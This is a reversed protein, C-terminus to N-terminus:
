PAILGKELLRPSFPLIIDKDFETHAPDIKAKPVRSLIHRIVNLRARKKDNANVVIWPAFEHHTRILMADRRKSYKKWMKQATADIPSSKWQSLPDNKRSELREGQEKKTIDLYYKIIHIGAQTLLTEFTVVTEMFNQYENNTCFGMVAEVGARNYWSRNMLVLEGEAPLHAVYRQFYWSEQDRNSPKGLAVIRTERPSLHQTIRKIVGDKGAADRGEFIILTKRNNKILSRQLKVLEIQLERLENEYSSLDM